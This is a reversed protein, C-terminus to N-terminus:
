KIKQKYRESEYVKKYKYNPHIDIIIDNIKKLNNRLDILVYCIMILLIMILLLSIFLLREM